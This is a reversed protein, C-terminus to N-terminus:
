HSRDLTESSNPKGSSVLLEAVAIFCRTLQADRDLSALQDHLSLESLWLMRVDHTGDTFRVLNFRANLTVRIPARLFGSRHTTTIHL